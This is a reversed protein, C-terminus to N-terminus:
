LTYGVRFAIAHPATTSTNIKIYKLQADVKKTLFIGAGGSIALGSEKEERLLKVGVGAKATIFIKYPLMYKPGAVATFFGTSGSIGLSKLNYFYNTYSPEVAISFNKFLKYEAIFTAGLGYNYFTKFDKVPLQNEIGINFSFNVPMQVQQKQAFLLVPLASILIYFFLQKM